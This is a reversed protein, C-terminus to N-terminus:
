VKPTRPKRPTKPAAAKKAVPKQEAPAVSEVVNAPAQVAVPAPTEVKYPAPSTEVPKAGFIKKLFSLM